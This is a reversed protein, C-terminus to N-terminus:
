TPILLYTQCKSPDGQGQLEQQSQCLPLPATARAGLSPLEVELCVLTTPLQCLELRELARSQLNQDLPAWDLERGAGGVDWPTVSFRAQM